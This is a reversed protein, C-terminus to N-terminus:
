QIMKMVIVMEKTMKIMKITVIMIMAILRGFAREDDIDM